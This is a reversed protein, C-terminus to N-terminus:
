SSLLEKSLSVLLSTPLLLCQLTDIATGWCQSIYNHKLFVSVCVCKRQLCHTPTIIIDTCMQYCTNVPYVCIFALSSVKSKCLLTYTKLPHHTYRPALGSPMTSQYIYISNLVVVCYCVDSVQSIQDMSSM